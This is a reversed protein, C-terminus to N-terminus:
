KLIQRKSAGVLTIIKCPKLLRDIIAESRSDGGLIGRYEQLDKQSTWILPNRGREWRKDIVYFLVRRTTEDLPEIGFDDLCLVDYKLLQDEFKQLEVPDQLRINIGARLDYFPMFRVSLGQRAMNNLLCCALTTKGCGCPGQILINARHVFYWNGGTLYALDDASVGDALGFNINQFSVEAKLNGKKLLMMYKREDKEAIERAILDHLRQEFPIQAFTHECLLQNELAKAMGHLHLKRLNAILEQSQSTLNYDM